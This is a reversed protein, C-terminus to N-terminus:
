SWRWFARFARALFGRVKSLLPEPTTRYYTPRMQKEKDFIFGAILAIYIARTLTKM